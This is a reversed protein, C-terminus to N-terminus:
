QCKEKRIAKASNHLVFWAVVCVAFVGGFLLYSGGTITKLGMMMLFLLVLALAFAMLKKM